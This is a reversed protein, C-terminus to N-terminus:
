KGTSGFGGENRETVPLIDVQKAKFRRVPEVWMQAIRDGANITYDSDSINDYLIGIEGTYGSDIIGISNSLRLGTKAGISSRPAIRAQWNEPLGLYIGTRIKNSLTHAPIVVTELAYLDACADSNHAYSPMTAGEDLKVLLEIDYLHYSELATDFTHFFETFITNLLHRKYDSPKLETNIFDVFSNRLDDVMEIAQARTVGQAEFARLIATSSEKKVNETFAGRLMGEVVERAEDNLDNEPLEMIATIIDELPKYEETELLSSFQMADTFDAM